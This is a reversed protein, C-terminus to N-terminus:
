LLPSVPFGLVHTWTVTWFRTVPGPGESSHQAASLTQPSVEVGNRLFIITKTIDVQSRFLM